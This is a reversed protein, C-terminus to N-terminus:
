CKSILDHEYTLVEPKFREYKRKRKKRETFLGYSVIFTANPLLNIDSTLKCELSSIDCSFTSNMPINM